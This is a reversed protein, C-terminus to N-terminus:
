SNRIVFARPPVRNVETRESEVIWDYTVRLEYSTM